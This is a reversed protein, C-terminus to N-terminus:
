VYRLSLALDLDSAKKMSHGNKISLHAALVLRLITGSEADIYSCFYIDRRCGLISDRDDM